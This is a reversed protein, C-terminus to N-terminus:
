RYVMLYVMSIDAKVRTAYEDVRWKGGNEWIEKQSVKAMNM